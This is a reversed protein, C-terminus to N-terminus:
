ENPNNPSMQKPAWVTRVTRFEPQIRCQMPLANEELMTLNECILENVYSGSIINYLMSKHLNYDFPNVFQDQIVNVVNCVAKNSKKIEAPRLCKNNNTSKALNCYERFSEIFASQYPRNM